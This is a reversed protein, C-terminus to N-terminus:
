KNTYSLNQQPLPKQVGVAYHTWMAHIFYLRLNSKKETKDDKHGETVARYLISCLSKHTQFNLRLDFVYKTWPHM